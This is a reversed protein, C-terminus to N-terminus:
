DEIHIREIRLAKGSKTDVEVSIGNLVMPGNKEVKFHVPMQNLFKELIIGQEVGISSYKAGAFGLDTIYSTGSPLIDEDATQVHTHTGYLGSVKGDLFHRMAHKESTAEAHFDVFILNTKTKLFSLV